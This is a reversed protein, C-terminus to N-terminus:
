KIEVTIHRTTDDIEVEFQYCGPQAYSVYSPIFVYVDVLNRTAGGPLVSERRPDELIMEDGIPGNLGQRRFRTKAGTNVEHGEVRVRQRTKFIWLTKVSGNRLNNFRGSSGDILWIPDAGTAPGVVSPLTRDTATSACLSQSLPALLLLASMLSM